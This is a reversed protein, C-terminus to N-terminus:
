FVLAVAVALAQQHCREMVVPVVVALAMGPILGMATEVVGAMEPTVVPM